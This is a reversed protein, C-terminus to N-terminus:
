LWTVVFKYFNDKLENYITRFTNMEERLGGHDKFHVHDIAVQNEKAYTALSNEHGNINHKLEDIVEKHRIFQNQFQELKQRVEMGTNRQSIEALRKELVPIEQEFFKLESIWLQHEFHLDSLYVTSPKM